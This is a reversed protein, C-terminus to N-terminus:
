RGGQGRRLSDSGTRLSDGPPPADSAELQVGDQLGQVDVRDVGSRIGQKMTMIIVDGRAYNISPRDPFRPSPDLHFSQAGKRAVIRSL